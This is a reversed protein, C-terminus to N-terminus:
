RVVIMSVAGLRNTVISPLPTMRSRFGAVTSALPYALACAGGWLLLGRCVQLTWVADLFDSDDGRKDRVIAAAIGADSVMALGYMVAGVLTMLGFAEPFLLRTLILSRAFRIM